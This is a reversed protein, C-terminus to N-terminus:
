IYGANYEFPTNVYLRLNDNDFRIITVTSLEEVKTVLVKKALYFKYRYEDDIIIINSAGAITLGSTNSITISMLTTKNRFNLIITNNSTYWLNYLEFGTLNYLDSM